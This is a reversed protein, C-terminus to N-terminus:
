ENPHGWRLNKTFIVHKATDGHIGYRVTHGDRLLYHVTCGHKLFEREQVAFAEACFNKNGIWPAIWVWGNPLLLKFLETIWREQDVPNDKWWAANVSFKCFIGDFQQERFIETLPHKLNFCYAPYGRYFGLSCVQPDHDVGICLALQSKLMDAFDWQGPGLDLVKKGMLQKDHFFDDLINDFARRGLNPNRMNKQKATAMLAIEHENHLM